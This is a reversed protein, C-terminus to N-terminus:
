KLYREIETIDKIEPTMGFLRRFFAYVKESHSDWLLFLITLINVVPIFALLMFGHIIKSNYSYGFKHDPGNKIDGGIFWIWLVVYVILCLWCYIWFIIM